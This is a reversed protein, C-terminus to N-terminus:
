IFISIDCVCSFINHVLFNKFSKLLSSVIPIDNNIKCEEGLKNLQEISITNM